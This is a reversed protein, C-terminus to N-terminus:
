RAVRRRALVAVAEDLDHPYWVHGDVGARSLSLLVALQEDTAKDNGVKLEVALLRGDTEHWLFLDPWGVVNTATVWRKGRGISRRVHLHRWNNLHALDIIQQQWEVHTLTLV